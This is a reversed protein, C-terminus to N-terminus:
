KVGKSKLFDIAHANVVLYKQTWDHMFHAIESCSLSQNEEILKQYNVVSEIYSRHIQKIDNMKEYRYKSLTIQEQMFFHDHIYILGYFLTTLREGYESQRICTELSEITSQIKQYQKDIEVIATKPFDIDLSLNQM